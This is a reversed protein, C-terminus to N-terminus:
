GRRRAMPSREAALWARVRAGWFEWASGASAVSGDVASIRERGRAQSGALLLTSGRALRSDVEVAVMVVAIGLVSGSGSASVSVFGV